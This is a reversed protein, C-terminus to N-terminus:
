DRASSVNRELFAMVRATQNPLFHYGEELFCIEARPVNRQLRDRTDASDLLVDRGGVIVLIPMDLAKLQADTMQPVAVFRPKTAKGISDMLPAFDQMAKPLVELKPGLVLEWMKRRGWSGLLLLPLAKLIFNKQQGIGAPCMLALGQVAKPRRCAYDLALWGGLSTGVFAARPLELGALVDDLWLAHADSDLDPRVPASLGPEGIMDIAYLRFKESWLAVDPMWAASNAQSGHLLVVPPAADPGCVIVFTSGQRTPVHRETRAVPWKELVNRYQATVSAAAEVSRYVPDTMAAGEYASTANLTEAIPDFATQLCLPPTGADGAMAASQLFTAVREAAEVTVGSIDTICTTRADPGTSASGSALGAFADLEARPIRYSKGMRTATLRGDRIYRLVTKPHLNLQQAAQEVTFLLRSMVLSEKKNESISIIPLL